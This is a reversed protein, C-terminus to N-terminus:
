KQNAVNWRELMEGAAEHGQQAAKELWMVGAEVLQRDGYSEGALLTLGGFAYQADAHGQQAAKLWLTSAAEADQPVGVGAIHCLGLTHQAEADGREARTRLAEMEKPTAQGSTYRERDIPESSSGGGGCGSM